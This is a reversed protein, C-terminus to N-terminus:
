SETSKSRKQKTLYGIIGLLSVGLITASQTAFGLYFGYACLSLFSLIILFSIILTNNKEKNENKIIKEQINYERNRLANRDKREDEAMKMFREAGNPIIKNYRVLDEYQPISGQYVTVEEVSGKSNTLKRGKVKKNGSM